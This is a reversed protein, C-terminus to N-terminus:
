TGNEVMERRGWSRFCLEPFVVVVGLSAELHEKREQCEEGKM